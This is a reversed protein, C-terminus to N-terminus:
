KQSVLWARLAARDVVCTHADRQVCGRAELGALARAVSERTTGLLEALATHGPLAVISSAQQDALIELSAGVQALVNRHAAAQRWQAILSFNSGFAQGLRERFAVSADGLSRVSDMAIECVRGATAAVVSSQNPQLLFAFMGLVTGRGCFALPRAKGRADNRHMFVAGVKVVQLQRADLGEQLLKEGSGFRRERRPPLRAAVDDPLSGVPCLNRTACDTCGADRRPGAHVVPAPTTPAANCTPAASGEIDMM